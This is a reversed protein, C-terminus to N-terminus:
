RLNWILAICAQVISFDCYRSMDIDSSPFGTQVYLPALEHLFNPNTVVLISNVSCSKQARHVMLICPFCLFVLELEAPSGSFDLDTFVQSVSTQLHDRSYLSFGITSTDVCSVVLHEFCPQILIESVYQEVITWQPWPWIRCHWLPRVESDQVELRVSIWILAYSAKLISFHCPGPVTLTQLHFDQRYM